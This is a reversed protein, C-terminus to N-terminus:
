NHDEPLVPLPACPIGDELLEEVEDASAQGYIPREDTERFHIKRAEEAFRPGVNESNAIVTDRWERVATMVKGRVEPPLSAFPDQSAPQTQGTQPNQPTQLNQPGHAAAPMHQPRDPQTPQIPVPGTATPATPEGQIEAMQDESVRGEGSSSIQNSKKPVSPTMLAKEVSTTGCEPCALLGRKQQTLFDDGSRFWGDFRHAASCQLSFRIM